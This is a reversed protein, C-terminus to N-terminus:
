GHIKSSKVIFDLPINELSQRSPLVWRIQKARSQLTGSCWRCCSSPVASPLASRAHWRIEYMTRYIIRSRKCCRMQVRRIIKSRHFLKSLIKAWVCVVRNKHSAGDQLMYRYFTGRTVHRYSRDRSLELVHCPIAAQTNPICHTIIINMKTSSSIQFFLKVHKGDKYWFCPFRVWM